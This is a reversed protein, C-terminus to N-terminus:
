ASRDEPEAKGSLRRLLEECSDAAYRRGPGPGEFSRSLGFCIQRVLQAHEASTPRQDEECATRMWAGDAGNRWGLEWLVDRVTEGERVLGDMVGRIAKFLAERRPDVWRSM